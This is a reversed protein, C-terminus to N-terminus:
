RPTIGFGDHHGSHATWDGLDSMVGHVLNGDVVGEAWTATITVEGNAVGAMNLSFPVAALGASQSFIVRTATWGNAAGASGDMVGLNSLEWSADRDAGQKRQWREHFDGAWSIMGLLDDAPLTNVKESLSGKIRKATTWILQDLGGGLTDQALITRIDACLKEPIHDHFGTVMDHFNDKSNYDADKPLYPRLDIPTSTTFSPAAEAPLRRCLSVLTLAHVLSTLSASHTRCTAVLKTATSAPLTVLQINTKYPMRIDISTATWPRAVPNLWSPGFENWLTRLLYSWSIPFQILKEVSEPLSKGSSLQLIGGHLPLTATSSGDRQPRGLAQLLKSHFLKGSIGDGIAHHYAFTVETAPTEGELGPRPFVIVKWPPRMELETWLQDHQAAIARVLQENCSSPATAALTQVELQAGLDISPLRVYCPEKTEQGIIGVQLFPENLIM